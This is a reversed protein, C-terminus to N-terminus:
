EVSDMCRFNLAHRLKSKGGGGGGGGGGCVCVCMSLGVLWVVFTGNCNVSAEGITSTPDPQRFDSTSSSLGAEGAASM